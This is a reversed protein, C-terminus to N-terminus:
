KNVSNQLTKKRTKRVEKQEEESMCFLYAFGEETHIFTKRYKEPIQVSRRPLPLKVKPIDECILHAYKEAFNITIGKNNAM